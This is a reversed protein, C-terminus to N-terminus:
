IDVQNDLCLVTGQNDGSQADGSQSQEDPLVIWSSAVVLHSNLNNTEFFRWSEINNEATIFVLWFDGFDLYLDNKDSLGVKKVSFDQWGKYFENFKECSVEADFLKIRKTGDQLMLKFPCMAHLVYSSTKRIKGRSDQFEKLEGFGFDFLDLNPSKIGYCLTTDVLVNLYKLAKTRKTM